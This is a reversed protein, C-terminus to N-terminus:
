LPTAIFVCADSSSVPERNKHTSRSPPHATSISTPSLCNLYTCIFAYNSHAAPKIRSLFKRAFTRFSFLSFYFVLIYLYFVLFFSVLGCFTCLIFLNIKTRQLYIIEQQLWVTRISAPWKKGQTHAHIPFIFYIRYNIVIIVFVQTSAFLCSM